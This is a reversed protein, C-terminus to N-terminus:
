EAKKKAAADDEALHVVAVGVGAARTRHLAVSAADDAVAARQEYTAALAEWDGLRECVRSLGELAPLYGPAVALARIFFDRASAPQDLPGECVEGARYLATVAVSADAVRQARADLFRVVEAWEGRAQFLRLAAEAAPAAAPDEAAALYAALAEDDRGGVAELLRGVRFQLWSRAAVPATTLEDSVLEARELNMGNEAYFSEIERALPQAWSSCSQM